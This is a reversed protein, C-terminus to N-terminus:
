PADRNPTRVTRLPGPTTPERAPRRARGPGPRDPVARHRAPHRSRPSRPTTSAPSTACRSRPATSPRSNPSRPTSTSCTPSATTSRRADTRPPEPLSRSPRDAPAEPAPGRRARRQDRGPLVLDHVARPRRVLPHRAHDRDTGGADRRARGAANRSCAGASRTCAISTARSCRTSRAATVRARGRCDRTAEDRSRREDVAALPSRTRCATLGRRDVRASRAPAPTCASRGPRHASSSRPTPSAEAPAHEIFEDIDPAGAHLVAIREVSDRPCGTSSSGCRRALPHPGQGGREVAGDTVSIIPKISLM